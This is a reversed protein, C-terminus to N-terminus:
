FKSFLKTKVKRKQKSLTFHTDALKYKQKNRINSSFVPLRSWCKLKLKMDLNLNKVQLIECQIFRVKEQEFDWDIDAPELGKLTLGLGRRGRQKSAEIIDVIGQGHKGLGSGKQHGM